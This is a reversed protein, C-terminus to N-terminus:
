TGDTTALVRSSSFEGIKMTGDEMILVHKPKLNQHFVDRSHSFQLGKMM